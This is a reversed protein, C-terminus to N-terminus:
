AGVGGWGRKRSMWGGNWGWEVDWVGCGVGWMNWAGVGGM